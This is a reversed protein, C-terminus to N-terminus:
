LVAEMCIPCDCYTGDSFVLTHPGFLSTYGHKIDRQLGHAPCTFLVWGDDKEVYGLTTLRLWQTFRLGTEKKINDWAVSMSAIFSILGLGGLAFVLSDSMM